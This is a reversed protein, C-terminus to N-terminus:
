FRNGFVVVVVDYSDVKPFLWLMSIIYSWVMSEFSVVIWILPASDKHEPCYLLVIKQQYHDNLLHAKLPHRYKLVDEVWEYLIQCKKQNDWSTMQISKLMESFGKDFETICDCYSQETM